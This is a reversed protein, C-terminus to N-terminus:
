CEAAFHSHISSSNFKQNFQYSIMITLITNKILSSPPDSGANLQRYREVLLAVSGAVGPTAMSTGSITGYANLPTYTSLVSTGFSSIEPKVRGDQVPGCSSTGNLAEASSINAVLINNKQQNEVPLLRLGDGQVPPKHIARPICM